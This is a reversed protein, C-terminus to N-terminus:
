VAGRRDLSHGLRVAIVDILEGFQLGNDMPYELVAAGQPEVHDLTVVLVSGPLQLQVEREVSGLEGSVPQGGVALDTSLDSAFQSGERAEHGLREHPYRGVPAVVVEGQPFAIGVGKEGVSRVLPQGALRAEVGDGTDEIM